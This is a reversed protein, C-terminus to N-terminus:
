SEWLPATISIRTIELRFEAPPSFRIEYLDVKTDRLIINRQKRLVDNVIAFFEVRRKEDDEPKRM